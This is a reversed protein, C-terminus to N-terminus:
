LTVDVCVGVAGTGVHVALVPGMDSVMPRECDPLRAALAEAVDSAASLNGVHHV